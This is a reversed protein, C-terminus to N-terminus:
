NTAIKAGETQTEGAVTRTGVVRGPVGGVIAFADVDRIVVAGAAIIAGRGITVGKLITAGHGIWVDDGITVAATTIGQEKMAIDTRAHGHDTDRISVAQSIMVDRGIDIRDNCGITSYEGMFSNRGLLIRGSGQIITGAGIKNGGMTVIRLGTGAKGKHSTFERILIGPGFRCRGIPDLYPAYRATFVRERFADFTKALIDLVSALWIRPRGPASARNPERLLRDPAATLGPKPLSQRGTNM